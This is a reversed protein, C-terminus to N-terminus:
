LPRGIEDLVSNARAMARTMKEHNAHESQAECWEIIALVAEAGHRLLIKNADKGPILDPRAALAGALARAGAKRAERGFDQDVALYLRASRPAAAVVAPVRVMAGAAQASWGTAIHLSGADEIGEAVIIEDRDPNDHVVIPRGASPGIMTKANEDAKGSGDPKLKTLHIGTILGAGFRAIMAPPRGNRAPLFGVFCQRSRLYTEAPSGMLPASLSWLYRALEAKDQVPEAAQQPKPPAARAAGSGDKAWGSNGCRACLYTLFDGDDWIRMVKRNRNHAQKREPGCIPCAVDVISRGAAGALLGSLQDFDLM